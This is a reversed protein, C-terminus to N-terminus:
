NEVSFAMYGVTETTHATEADRSKEEEIKVEIGYPDRNQWRLAAIDKGDTTQMDALFVPAELFTSDFLITYFQDTVVDGTTAVEFSMGNVTGLGPQWAIYHITEDNHIQDSAEQEQM